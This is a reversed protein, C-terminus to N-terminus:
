GNKKYIDFKYAGHKKDAPFWLNKDQETTKIYQRPGNNYTYSITIGGESMWQPSPNTDPDRNLHVVEKKLGDKLSPKYLAYEKYTVGDVVRSQGTASFIAPITMPISGGDGGVKPRVMYTIRGSTAWAADLESVLYERRVEADSKAAPDNVIAYDKGDKKVFGRIVLIHGPTYAIAGGHIVPVNKDISEDNKYKLSIAVPNGAIIERKVDDMGNMYEIHSAYGYAGAYAVSYPWNGYGDYDVDLTGMASKEPLIHVDRYGLLMAISTPSCILNAFEPDRIMQSYVPVKLDKQLNDLQNQTITDKYVKEIVKDPNRITAALLNVSPTIITSNSHLTVRYQYATGRNKGYITFTDTDVYGLDYENDTSISSREKSTSWDGWTLWPSWEGNVQVRVDVKISSGLPTDATWSAVLYKFAETEIVNSTYTGEKKGKVLQISGDGKKVVVTGEKQGDAFDQVTTEIFTNGKQVTREEAHVSQISMFAIVTLVAWCTVKKKM